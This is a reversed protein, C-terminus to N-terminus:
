NGEHGTPLESWPMHGIPPWPMPCTDGETGCANPSEVVPQPKPSPSDAVLTGTFFSVMVLASGLATGTTWKLKVDVGHFYEFWM